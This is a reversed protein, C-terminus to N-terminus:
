SFSYSYSYFYSNFNLNFNFNFNPWKPIEDLMGKLDGRDAVTFPVKVKGSGAATWKSKESQHREFDQKLGSGGWVQQWIKKGKLQRIIEEDQKSSLRRNVEEAAEKAKAVAAVLTLLFILCSWNIMEIGFIWCGLCKLTECRYVM